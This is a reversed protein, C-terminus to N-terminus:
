PGKEEVGEVTIERLQAIEWSRFEIRNRLSPSLSSPKSRILEKGDVSFIAEQGGSKLAIEVEYIGGQLFRFNATESKGNQALIPHQFYDQYSEPNGAWARLQGANMEEASLVGFSHGGVHFCAFFPEGAEHSFAVRFRLLVPGVLRFPFDGSLGGSSQFEKASECRRKRSIGAESIQWAPSLKWPFALNSHFLYHLKLRNEGLDQIEASPFRASWNVMRKAEALSRQNENRAAELSAREAKVWDLDSFENLLKDYREQAREWEGLWSFRRATELSERSQAERSLAAQEGEGLLQEIRVLKPTIKELFQGRRALKEFVERAALWERQESLFLGWSYQESESLGQLLEGTKADLIGSIRGVTQTDASSFSCRLRIGNEQELAFEGTRPNFLEILKGSKWIAGERVSFSVGQKGRLATAFRERISLLSQLDDIRLSLENKVTSFFPRTELNQWEQLVKEYDRSRMAPAFEAELDNMAALASEKQQGQSQDRLSNRLSDLAQNLDSAASDNLEGLMLGCRSLLTEVEEELRNLNATPPIQQLRTQYSKEFENLVLKCAEVKQKAQSQIREQWEGEFKEFRNELSSRFREPLQNLSIGPTKRFSEAALSMQQMASRFRNRVLLSKLQEEVRPIERIALNEFDSALKQLQKQTQTSQRSISNEWESQITPFLAGLQALNIGLKAEFYDKGKGQLLEDLQIFERNQQLEQMRANAAQMTLQLRRQWEQEFAARNEELAQRQPHTSALSTLLRETEQARSFLLSASIEKEPRLKSLDATQIQPSSQPVIQKTESSSLFWWAGGSVLLMAAGVALLIKSSSSSHASELERASVKPQEKAALRRLDEILEEPTQYRTRPDKALMKRLVLSFGESVAARSSAEAEKEFLVKTLLDALSEGAFPPSGTVLHYLTAGLSYLDSRIDVKRPDRAQEPSIYQPTGLTSGEQTMTPDEFRRALGLDSLKIQGQETLLINGPKVDRHVIGHRYAHELASAVQIAIEIVENEAFRHKQTLWQRLTKGEAFEMVFYPLGESVGYDIGKVVNPHNLRASLKAERQLRDLYRPRMALEARLVKIAVFRDLAVQRAKYVSGMSGQGIKELIEYGPIQPFKSPSAPTENM